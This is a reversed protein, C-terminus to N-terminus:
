ICSGLAKLDLAPVQNLWLLRYRSQTTLSYSCNATHHPPAPCRLCLFLTSPSLDPLSRPTEGPTQPTLLHLPQLVFAYIAKVTTDKEGPNNSAEATNQAKPALSADVLKSGAKWFARSPASAPPTGSVKPLLLFQHPPPCSFKLLTKSVPWPPQPLSLCHAPDRAALRSKSNSDPCTRPEM